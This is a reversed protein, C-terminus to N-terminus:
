SAMSRCFSSSPRLFDDTLVVVVAVVVANGLREFEEEAAGGMGFFLGFDIWIQGIQECFKLESSKRDWM